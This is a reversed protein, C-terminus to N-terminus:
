DVNVWALGWTMMGQIDLAQGVVALVDEVGAVALQGAVEPAEATV